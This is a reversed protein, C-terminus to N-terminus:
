VQSPSCDVRTRSLQRADQFYVIGVYEYTYPNMFFMWLESIHVTKEKEHKEHEGFHITQQLPVGIRM